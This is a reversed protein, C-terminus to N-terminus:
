NATHGLALSRVERDRHGAFYPYYPYEGGLTTARLASLVTGPVSLANLLHHSDHKKDDNNNKLTSLARASSWGAAIILEKEPGAKGPM